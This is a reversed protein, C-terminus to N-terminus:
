IYLFEAIMRAFSGHYRNNEANISFFSLGALGKNKIKDVAEAMAEPTPWEAEYEGEVTFVAGVKEMPIGMNVIADLNADDLATSAKFSIWNLYPHSAAIVTSMITAHRCQSPFCDSKFHVDHTTTYSITKTPPLYVTRLAKIVSFHYTASNGPNICCGSGEPNWFQGEHPGSFFFDVGDLNWDLINKAIRQALYDAAVHDEFTNSSGGGNEASIGYKMGQYQGGYALNVKGGLEHIKDIGEKMLNATINFKTGWDNITRPKAPIGEPPYQNCFEDPYNEQCRMTCYDAAHITM